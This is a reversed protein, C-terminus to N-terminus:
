SRMKDKVSLSKVKVRVGKSIWKPYPVLYAHAMEVDSIDTEFLEFSFRSFVTALTIYLEAQALSYSNTIWVRMETFTCSRSLVRALERGRASLFLSATWTRDTLGGKQFLNKRMLSSLNM